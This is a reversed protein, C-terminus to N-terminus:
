ASSAEEKPASADRAQPAGEFRVAGSGPEIRGVRHCTAGAREVRRAIAAAHPESVILLMGLGLNFVRAMEEEPVEGLRRILEFVPPEPWAGRDLVADCDGPLIRPTNEVLGGGTVHVIGHVPKKWRYGRFVALLPRAYIATPRLLEEALTCGLEPVEADLALGAHELLVKRALSYGNSHLGTSPLGLIVDGPRVASGDIIRRREVIGVAFGALDYEGAAYFGPLEATEGGLLACGAERCGASVGRVVDLVVGKDVKGVAVYDLFFLPEAGQVLIDNVSMAVLDIGVTDHRGTAFAIKLKTGVGDTGTVLVPDSLSRSFLGQVGRLRYLGAFGGDNALVAPTFTSRLLKGYAAALENGADIDVGADRYRIGGGEGSSM